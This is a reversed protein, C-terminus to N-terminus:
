DLFEKIADNIRGISPAMKARPDAGGAAVMEFDDLAGALRRKLAEDAIGAIHERARAVLRRPDTDRPSEPCAPLVVSSGGGAAAECIARVAFGAALRDRGERSYVGRGAGIAFSLVIWVILLGVLVYVAIRFKRLQPTLTPM